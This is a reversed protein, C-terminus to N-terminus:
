ACGCMNLPQTIHYPCLEQGCGLHHIMEYTVECTGCATPEMHRRRALMGGAVEIMPHPCTPALTPGCAGCDFPTTRAQLHSCLAKNADNSDQRYFVVRGNDTPIPWAAQGPPLLLRQGDRPGGVLLREVDSM